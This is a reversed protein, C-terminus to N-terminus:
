GLRTLGAATPLTPSPRAPTETPSLSGHSAPAEPTCRSNDNEFPARPGEASRTGRPRGKTSRCLAIRRVGPFHCVLERHVGGQLARNRVQPAPLSRCLRRFHRRLDGCFKRKQTVFS